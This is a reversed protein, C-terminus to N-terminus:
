SSEHQCSLPDRSQLLEIRSINFALPKSYTKFVTQRRGVTERDTHTQRGKEGERLLVSFLNCLYLNCTHKVYM